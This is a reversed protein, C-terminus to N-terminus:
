EPKAEALPRGDKDRFLNDISTLKESLEEIESLTAKVKLSLGAMDAVIMRVNDKLALSKSLFVLREEKGANFKEVADPYNEELFNILEMYRGAEKRNQDILAKEFEKTRSQFM